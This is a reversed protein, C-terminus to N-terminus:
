ERVTSFDIENFVFEKRAAGSSGMLAKLLNIAEETPNLIDIRQNKGFMSAKAQDASLSGLGKNRQIEGIVKGRVADMEEDTFYYQEGKHM